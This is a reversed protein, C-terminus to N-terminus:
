QSINNAHVAIESTSKTKNREKRSSHGASSHSRLKKLQSCWQNNKNKNKKRGWQFLSCLNKIKIKRPQINSQQQDQSDGWLNNRTKTKEEEGAAAPLNFIIKWTSQKVTATAEGTPVKKKRGQKLSSCTFQIKNRQTIKKVVNCQQCQSGWWITVQGIKRKWVPHKNTTKTAKGLWGHQVPSPQQQQRWEPLMFGNRTERSVQANNQCKKRNKGIYELFKIWISYVTSSM